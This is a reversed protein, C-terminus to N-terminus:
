HVFNNIQLNNKELFENVIANFEEPNEWPGIHGCNQLIRFSSDKIKEQYIKMMSVPIVSDYESSIFLTPVKINSINNSCDMRGALAAFGASIGEDSNKSVLSYFKKKMEENNLNIDSIYKVWQKEIFEERHSHLKKIARWRNAKSEEADIGPFSNCIILAECYDPMLEYLRFALYGGFSHGCWIAKQLGNQKIVSMLFEVYYESTVANFHLEGKGFGPLDPAVVYHNKSFYSLQKKWFLSNMPLGHILLIPKKGYHGQINISMPLRANRVDINEIVSM